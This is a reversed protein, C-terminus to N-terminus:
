QDSHGKCLVKRVYGILNILTLSTNWNVPLSRMVPNSSCDKPSLLQKCATSANEFLAVEDKDVKRLDLKAILEYVHDIQDTYKREQKM